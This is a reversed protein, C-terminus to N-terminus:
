QTGFLWYIAAGAFAAMIVSAIWLLLGLFGSFWRRIKHKDYVRIATSLEHQVKADTQFSRRIVDTVADIAVVQTSLTNAFTRAFKENTALKKELQSIRKELNAIEREKTSKAGSKVGTTKESM